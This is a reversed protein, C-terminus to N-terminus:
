FSYKFFLSQKINLYEWNYREMEAIHKTPLGFHKMWDAKM